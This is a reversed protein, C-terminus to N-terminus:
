LFIIKTASKEWCFLGPGVTILDIYFHLLIKTHSGYSFGGSFDAVTFSSIKTFSFTASKRGFGKTYFKIENERFSWFLMFVLLSYQFAQLGPLLFNLISILAPDGGGGRFQTKPQKTSKIGHSLLIM